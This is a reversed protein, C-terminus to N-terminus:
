RPWWVKEAFLVQCRLCTVTKNNLGAVVVGDYFVGGCMPAWPLQRYHVLSDTNATCTTIPDTNM